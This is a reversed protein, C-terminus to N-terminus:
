LQSENGYVGGNFIFMFNKTAYKDPNDIDGDNNLTERICGENYVNAHGCGLVLELSNPMKKIVRKISNCWKLEEKTM